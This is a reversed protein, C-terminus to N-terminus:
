LPAEETTPAECLWRGVCGRLLWGAAPALSTGDQLRIDCAQFLSAMSQQKTHQQRTLQHPRAGGQSPRPQQQLRRQWSQMSGPGTLLMRM